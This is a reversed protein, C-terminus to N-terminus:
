LHVLVRYGCDFLQRNAVGVSLKLTCGSNVSTLGESVGSTGRIGGCGRFQEILDARRQAGAVIGGMDFFAADGPDCAEDEEVILPM